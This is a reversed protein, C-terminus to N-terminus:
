EHVDATEVGELAIVDVIPFKHGPTTVMVTVSLLVHVAVKEVVIVCGGAIVKVM